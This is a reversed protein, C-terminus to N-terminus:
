GALISTICVASGVAVGALEGVQMGDFSFFSVAKTDTAVASTVFMMSFTVVVEMVLSRAPTGSPTTTGLDTIPHLLERLIFSAIM